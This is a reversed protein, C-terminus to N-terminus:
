CDGKVDEGRQLAPIGEHSLVGTTGGDGFASQGLGDLARSHNTLLADPRTQPTTHKSMRKYRVPRAM